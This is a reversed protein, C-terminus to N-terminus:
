TELISVPKKLFLSRWLHEKPPPAGIKVIDIFGAGNTKTDSIPGAYFKSEKLEIIKGNHVNPDAQIGYGFALINM